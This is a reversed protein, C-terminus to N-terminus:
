IHILSLKDDKATVGLTSIDATGANIEALNKMPIYNFLFANEFGNAPDCTRKWAYEFDAATVPTGNSWTSDRLTFTYTLGDESVTYSECVNPQPVNNEDLRFLCDMMLNMMDITASLGTNGTDLTDMEANQSMHLVKPEEAYSGTVMGALLLSAVVM